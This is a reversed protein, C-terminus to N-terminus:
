GHNRQDKLSTSPSHVPGSECGSSEVEGLLALLRADTPQILAPEDIPRPATCVRWAVAAAFASLILALPVISEM